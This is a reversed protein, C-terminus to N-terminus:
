VDLYFLKCVNPLNIDLFVYMYIYLNIKKNLSMYINFKMVNWLM